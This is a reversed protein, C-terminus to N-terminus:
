NQKNEFINSLRFPDFGMPNRHFIDHFVGIDEMGEFFQSKSTKQFVAVFRDDTLTLITLLVIIEKSNFNQWFQDIM